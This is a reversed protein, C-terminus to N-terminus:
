FEGCKSCPHRNGAQALTIEQISRRIKSCNRSRHFRDGYNCIFVDADESFAKGRCCGECPYYKGGETSRLGEIDQYKVQSISLALYTCEMTTHYVSGSKTIYVTRDDKEREGLRTEVGTFARTHCQQVIYFSEKGFIPFPIKVRYDAVLYIDKKEEDFVSHFMGPLLQSGQLHLKMKGTLYVPNIVAEKETLAYEVSVERGAQNLAWQVEEEYFLVRIIYLFSLMAFLFIPLVLAAEVTLSAKKLMIEQMFSYGRM